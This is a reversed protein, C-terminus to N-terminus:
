VNEHGRMAKIEANRKHLEICRIAKQRGLESTPFFQGRTGGELLSRVLERDSTPCLVEYNQGRKATTVM